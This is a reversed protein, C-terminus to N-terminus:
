HSKHLLMNIFLLISEMAIPSIGCSRQWYGPEQIRIWTNEELGARSLTCQLLRIIHHETFVNCDGLSGPQPLFTVTVDVLASWPKWKSNMYRFGNMLNSFIYLISISYHVEINTWMIFQM